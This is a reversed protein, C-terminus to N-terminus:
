WTEEYQSARSRLKALEHEIGSDLQKNSIPSPSIKQTSPDLNFDSRARKNDGHSVSLEDYTSIHSM